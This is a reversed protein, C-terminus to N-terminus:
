TLCFGSVGMDVVKEKIAESEGAEQGPLCDQPKLSSDFSAWCMSLSSSHLVSAKSRTLLLLQSLSHLENLFPQHTPTTIIHLHHLPQLM